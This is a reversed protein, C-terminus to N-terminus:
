QNVVVFVDPAQERVDESGYAVVDGGCVIAM